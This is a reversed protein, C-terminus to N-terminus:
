EKGGRSSQSTHITALRGGIMADEWDETRSFDWENDLKIIEVSWGDGYDTSVCCALAGVWGKLLAHTTAQIGM